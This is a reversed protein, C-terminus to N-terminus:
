GSDQAALDMKPSNEFLAARNQDEAKKVWHSYVLFATNDILRRMNRITYPDARLRRLELRAPMAYARHLRCLCRVALIASRFRTRRDFTVCPLEQKAFFPHALAQVSTLRQGPDVRLLSAILSKAAESVEEWEPTDLSFRGEMIMRLMTMQRRHWFPPSGVLLTYMLVGSAWMDVPRGYVRISRSEYMNVVLIEPSLYSPTGCLDTLCDDTEVETAFGFDTLKVSMEADLLINEAKIDRHVIQRSHLFELADLLQRMVGRTRKESMRVVKNLHEFLEGHPCIEFVFFIYAETEFHDHLLIINAHGQVLRLIRLEKLADQRADESNTDLNNLDIVKVAFETKSSKEVCRRVVSSLGRGLIEKPEYKSHFQNCYENNEESPISNAITMTAVVDLDIDPKKFIARPIGADILESELFCTINSMEFKQVQCKRSSQEKERMDEFTVEVLAEDKVAGFTHKEWWGVLVAQSSTNARTTMPTTPRSPVTPSSAAEWRLAEMASGARQSPKAVMSTSDTAATTKGSPKELSCTPPSSYLRGSIYWTPTETPLVAFRCCGGAGRIDDGLRINVASHGVEQGGGPRHTGAPPLQGAEQERLKEGLPAAPLTQQRRGGGLNLPEPAAIRTGGSRGGLRALFHCGEGYGVFDTLHQGLSRRSAMLRVLGALKSLPLPAEDLLHPARQAAQLGPQRLQGLLPAAAEVQQPLSGSGLIAAHLGGVKNLNSYHTLPLLLLLLLLLLVLKGPSAATAFRLIRSAAATPVHLVTRDFLEFTNNFLRNNAAIHTRVTKTGHLPQRGQETSPVFIVSCFGLPRPRGDRQDQYDLSLGTWHWPCRWEQMTKEDSKKVMVYAVGVCGFHCWQHTATCVVGGRNVSKKCRLSIGGDEFTVEVLAEDKVAGFTHKEWWGVLVAQSSTNARTTMPTTPRSPVTPSSAAEWRLAEMASGARQSPKAVMSTSDTAATTKGSPKELSCTPPSSYLRGSIYWTPTETPLVAFRCCGGAGRIDDGLRINVASHGVEQGGGPRHTGAPPLQGAEQERLKEGLPAAPLTQQRRGGGLNLPEPAAIRTGGSRGGLRALFHCGEGYGVFDTLHQGLSRRSAMLRVLGALKSLPLPAEDLLHPARQAAQLGPQRLQGLLPAAAEVQQPLSGSGLIAAHLGGVKNLNSYHTLPLLLLLLLLLLVLKGPSAATAFRLIRSAAATPVHLVTRDFLEFTNNFLRNNAAIHTRVTKTGHLPQRGQETSPVFIVSCFGLPRPRGDRQDQYDLSLGTWHWPCRWEQMTKEDSKKVMVYAVGVCGFHCWQHTATCVVGGRNVSKKCRQQLQVLLERKKLSPGDQADLGSCRNGLHRSFMRWVPAGGGPRSSLTGNAPGSAWREGAPLEMFAGGGAEGPVRAGGSEEAVDAVRGARGAEAICKGASTPRRSRRATPLNETSLVGGTETADAEFPWSNLRTGLRERTSFLEILTLMNLSDPRRESASHRVHHRLLPQAAATTFMVLRTQARMTVGRHRHPRRVVELRLQPTPGELLHESTLSAEARAKSAKVGPLLAPRLPETWLTATFNAPPLGDELPAEAAPQKLRAAPARSCIKTPWAPPSEAQSEPAPPPPPLKTYTLLPESLWCSSTAAPPPPPAELFYAPSIECAHIAAARCAARAAIRSAGFVGAGTASASLRAPHRGVPVSVIRLIGAATGAGTPAARSLGAALGENIGSTGPEAEAVTPQASRAAAGARGAVATEASAASAAAAANMTAMTGAAASAAETSAASACRPPPPPPEKQPPTPQAVEEPTLASRCPRTRSLRRSAAGALVGQLLEALVIRLVVSVLSQEPGRQEVVQRLRHLRHASRLNYGLHAFSVSHDSVGGEVGGFVQCREVRLVPERFAPEDPRIRVPDPLSFEFHEGNNSLVPVSSHTSVEVDLELVSAAVVVAAEHSDAVGGVIAAGPHVLSEIALRRHQEVGLLLIHFIRLAHLVGIPEDDVQTLGKWLLSFSQQEGDFNVRALIREARVAALRLVEGHRLAQRGDVPGVQEVAHRAGNLVESGALNHDFHSLAALHNRAGREFDRVVCAADARLVPESGLPQQLAIGVLEAVLPFELAEGDGALAPAVESSAEVDCETVSAARVIDDEHSEAVRVLVVDSGVGALVREGFEMLGIAAGRGGRAACTERRQEAGAQEVIQRPNDLVASVGLDHGLHAFIVLHDDADREVHALVRLREGRVVPEGLVSQDLGIGVPDALSCEMAEGDGALAPAIEPSAEVDRETVSAARVVDDKHSDGVRVLIVQEHALFPSNPLAGTNLMWVRKMEPGGISERATVGGFASFWTSFHVGLQRWSRVATGHIDPGGGHGTVYAAGLRSLRVRGQREANGGSSTACGVGGCFSGGGGGGGSRPFTSAGGGSFGGGGGSAGIPYRFCCGGGAGGGGFGGDGTPCSGSRAGGLWGDGLGLGPGGPDVFSESSPQASGTWGAGAGGCSFNPRATYRIPSVRGPQGGAGGPGSYKFGGPNSSTGSTSGSGNMGAYKRSAGGGGGAAVLLQQSDSGNSVYVFSGGGGGAGVGCASDGGAQGVLIQLRVGAFLSFCGAASAGRSSNIRTSSGGAAGFAEIRYCGALKVVVSQVSGSRGASSDPTFADFALASAEPAAFQALRQQPQQGWSGPDSTGLGSHIVCHRRGRSPGHVEAAMGGAVMPSAEALGTSGVRLPAESFVGAVGAALCSLVVEPAARRRSLLALRALSPPLRVPALPWRGAAASAEWDGPRRRQHPLPLRRNDDQPLVRAQRGVLQLLHSTGNIAEQPLLSQLARRQVNMRIRRPVRAKENPGTISVRTPPEKLQQGLLAVASAECGDQPQRVGPHPAIRVAAEDVDAKPLQADAGVLGVRGTASLLAPPIGLCGPGLRSSRSLSGFCVAGGPLVAGRTFGFASSLASSVSARRAAGLPAAQVLACSLCDTGGFDGLQPSLDGPRRPAGARGPLTPVDWSPGVGRPLVSQLRVQRGLRSAAGPCQALRFRLVGHGTAFPPSRQRSGESWDPAKQQLLAWPCRRGRGSAPTRRPPPPVGPSQLARDASIGAAVQHRCILVCCQTAADTLRIRVVSCCSGPRTKTCSGDAAFPHSFRVCFERPWALGEFLEQVGESLVELAPVVRYEHSIFEPVARLLGAFGDVGPHLPQELSCFSTFELSLPIEDDSVLNDGAGKAFRGEPGGNIVDAGANAVDDDLLRARRDHAAFGALLARADEAVNDLGEPLSKDSNPADLVNFDADVQLVSGHRTQWGGLRMGTCEGAGWHVAKSKGISKSSGMAPLQESRGRLQWTSATRAARSHPPPASCSIASNGRGARQFFGAAQRKISFKLAYYHVYYVLLLLIGLAIFSSCFYIAPYDGEKLSEISLLLIFLGLITMIIGVMLELWLAVRCFYRRDYCLIRQRGAARSARPTRRRPSLLRAGAETDESMGCRLAGSATAAAATPMPADPPPRMATVPWGATLTIPPRQTPLVERSGGARAPPDWRINDWDPPGGPAPFLRGGKRVTASLPRSP